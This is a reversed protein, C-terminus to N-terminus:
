ILRSLRLRTRLSTRGRKLKLLYVHGDQMLMKRIQDLKFDSVPRGDIGTIIDGGRIHARSAASNPEVDDVLVNSLDKGDAVLKLGSMDIEFPDSFHANPELIMTQRPFDLVVKFRRLFEGGILGDYEASAYDGKTAQSFRAVPNRITMKGLSISEIRGLSAGATGGVGGIRTTSSKGLLALLGQNKVFPTNFLIAGTSGSDIEFTGDVVRNGLSVRGHVFPLDEKMALPVLAGSGSYRYSASEYFNIVQSGYDIEVTFQKTIDNGVIGSVRRGLSTSLFDLKLVAVTLDTVEVGPLGLRVGKLITAEATGASGSGVIKGSSKLGLTKALETDVVTSDAGTDFIFWSTASNNLEVPVLILNSSLQFPIRASSKGSLLRVAPEQQSSDETRAEKAQQAFTQMPVLLLVAPIILKIFLSRRSKILWM